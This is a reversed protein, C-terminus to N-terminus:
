IWIFERNMEYRYFNESGGIAVLCYANTLKAFVGVENNGEFQARVAMVFYHNLRTEAKFVLFNHFLTNRECRAIRRPELQSFRWWNIHVKFLNAFHIKIFRFFILPFLSGSTISDEQISKRNFDSKQRQFLTIHKKNSVILHIIEKM